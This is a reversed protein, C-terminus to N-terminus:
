GIVLNAEDLTTLLAMVVSMRECMTGIQDASGSVLRRRIAVGEGIATGRAKRNKLTQTAARREPAVSARGGSRQPGEPKAQAPAGERM